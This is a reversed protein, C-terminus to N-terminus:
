LGPREVRDESSRGSTRPAVKLEHGVRAGRVESVGVAGPENVLAKAIFEASIKM